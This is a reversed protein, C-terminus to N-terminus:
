AGGLFIFGIIVLLLIVIFFLFYDVLTLSGKKKNGRKQKKETIPAINEEVISQDEVNEIEDENSKEKKVVSESTTLDIDDLEIKENEVDFLHEHADTPEDHEIKMMTITSETEIDITKDLEDNLQPVELIQSLTDLGMEHFKANYETLIRDDSAEINVELEELIELVKNEEEITLDDVKTVYGELINALRKTSAFSDDELNELRNLHTYIDEKLSRKIEEERDISSM